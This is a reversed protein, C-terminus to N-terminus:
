ILIIMWANFQGVFTTTSTLGGVFLKRISYYNEVVIVDFVLKNMHTIIIKQHTIIHAISSYKNKGVLLSKIPAITLGLEM